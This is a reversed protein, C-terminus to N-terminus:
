RLFLLAFGGTAEGGLHSCICGKHLLTTPSDVDVVTDSAVSVLLRHSFNEPKPVKKRDQLSRDM